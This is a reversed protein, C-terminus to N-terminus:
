TDPPDALKEELGLRFLARQEELPLTGREIRHAVRM